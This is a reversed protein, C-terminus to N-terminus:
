EELRVSAWRRPGRGCHHAAAHVSGTSGDGDDRGKGHQERGHATIEGPLVPLDRRLYKSASYKKLITHMSEDDKKCGTGTTRDRHTFLQGM